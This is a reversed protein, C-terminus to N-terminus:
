IECDDNEKNLFLIRHYVDNYYGMLDKYAALYYNRKMPNEIFTKFESDSVEIVKEVACKKPVFRDAKCTLNANLILKEAM